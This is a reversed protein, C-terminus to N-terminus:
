ISKAKRMTPKKANFPEANSIASKIRHTSLPYQQM